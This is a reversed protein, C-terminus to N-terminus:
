RLLNSLNAGDKCGSYMTFSETYGLAGNAMMNILTEFIVGNVDRLKRKASM